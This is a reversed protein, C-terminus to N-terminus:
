EDLADIYDMVVGRIEEEAAPIFNMTGAVRHGGGCVQAHPLKKQCISILANVDFKKIEISARFNYSDRNTGMVITRKEKYDELMLSCIRGRGPYAGRYKIDSVPITVLMITKKQKISAYKACSKKISEIAPKMQKEIIRLLREQRKIDFGLLDHMMPDGTNPGLTMSEFDLAAAVRVMRERSWGFIEAKKVYEEAEISTVKDAIASVAGILSFHQEPLDKCDKTLEYAIEAALMGACIDYTSGICHPNVQALLYRETQEAPPHHDIVVLSAGYLKAKQLGAISEIASGTDCIIILPLKMGFNKQNRIAAMMDKTADEYSYFPGMLPLRKYYNLIDRERAHKAELLPLLGRELAIGASFGDADNHHRIVIPQRKEVADKISEAVTRINKHLKELIPSNIIM